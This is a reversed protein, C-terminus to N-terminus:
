AKAAVDKLAAAIATAVSTVCHLALVWGAFEEVRDSVL